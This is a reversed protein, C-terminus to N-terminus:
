EVLLCILYYICSYIRECNRDIGYVRLYLCPKILENDIM